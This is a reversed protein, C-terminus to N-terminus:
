EKLAAASAALLDGAKEFYIRKGHTNAFSVLRNVADHAMVLLIKFEQKEKDPEGGQEQAQRLKEEYEDRIAKVEAQKQAELERREEIYRRDMLENQRINERELSRITEQIRRESDSNDVVAVEVPRDRLEKNEKALRANDASAQTARKQAKSLGETLASIQSSMKERENEIKMKEGKLKNIEEKLERVSTSELDVSQTLKAQNEESLSALLSLKTIGIGSISKRNEESINEIISIYNRANRDSFGCMETCYAEFSSYGLEKYLKKDRMEKLGSCMDWLNQAALSGSTIIRQHLQMAQEHLASPLVPAIEGCKEMARRYAGPALLRVRVADDKLQEVTDVGARKLQNYTTVDLNLEEITM